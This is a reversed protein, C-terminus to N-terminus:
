FTVKGDLVGEVWRQKMHDPIGFFVDVREEGAVIINNVKFMDMEDIDLKM